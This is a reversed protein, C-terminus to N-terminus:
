DADSNSCGPSHRSVVAKLCLQSDELKLAVSILMQLRAKWGLALEIVQEHYAYEDEPDGSTTRMLVVLCLM